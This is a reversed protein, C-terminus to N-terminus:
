KHWLLPVHPGRYIADSNFMTWVALSVVAVVLVAEFAPNAFLRRVRQWNSGTFRTQM